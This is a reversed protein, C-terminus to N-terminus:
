PPNCPCYAVARKVIKGAVAPAAACRKIRALKQKKKTGERLRDCAETECLEQIIAHVHKPLSIYSHSSTTLQSYLQLFNSVTGAM